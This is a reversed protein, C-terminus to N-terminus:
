LPLGGGFMVPPGDSSLGTTGTVSASVNNPSLDKETGGSQGWLPYYSRATERAPLVSEPKFMLERILSIGLVTNSFFAHAILGNTPQGLGTQNGMIFNSTNTISAFLVSAPSCAAVSNEYLTLRDSTGNFTGVVYVWRGDRDVSSSCSNSAAGNSVRFTISDTSIQYLAYGASNNLLAAKKTLLADASADETLKVWLGISFNGTTVDNINGADVSQTASDTFNRSGDCLGLSPMLVFLLISLKKM